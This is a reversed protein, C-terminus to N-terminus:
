FLRQHLKAVTEQTRDFIEAQALLEFLVEDGARDTSNKKELRIRYRRKIKAISRQLDRYLFFIGKRRLLTPDKRLISEVAQLRLAFREYGMSEQEAVSSSTELAENSVSEGGSSNPEPTTSETETTTAASQVDKNEGLFQGDLAIAAEDGQAGKEDAKELAAIDTKLQHAGTKVSGLCAFAGGALALWPIIRHVKFYKMWEFSFFSLILTAALTLLVPLTGIFPLPLTGVLVAVGAALSPLVAAAQVSVFFNTRSRADSEGGLLRIIWTLTPHLLFGTAIGVGLAIAASKFPQVLFRMVFTGHVLPPVLAGISGIGVAFLQAPIAYAAIGLRGMPEFRQESISKRLVGIPNVLLTPIAILYYALAKLVNHLFFFLWSLENEATVVDATDLDEYFPDHPTSKENAHKTNPVTADEEDLDKWDTLLKTSKRPKTSETAIQTIEFPHNSLQFVLGEYIEVPGQIRSGDIYTGNASQLDELFWKGRDPYIRAHRGSVTADPVALDSLEEDRGLIAGRKGIRSRESSNVDMFELQM